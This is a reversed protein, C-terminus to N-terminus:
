WVRAENDGIFGIFRTKGQDRAKTVAEVVVGRELVELTCSHLRLVDLHDTKLRALSRAVSEAIVKATWPEASTGVAHGRM